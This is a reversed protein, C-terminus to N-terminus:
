SETLLQPNKAGACSFDWSSQGMLKPPIQLWWSGSTPIGLAAKRSPKSSTIFSHLMLFPRESGLFM